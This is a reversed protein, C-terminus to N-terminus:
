PTGREIVPLFPGCITAGPDVPPPEESPPVPYSSGLAEAMARHALDNLHRHEGLQELVCRVSLAGFEREREKLKKEVELAAARPLENRLLERTDRTLQRLEMTNWASVLSSVVAVVVALAIVIVLGLRQSRKAVREVEAFRDQSMEDDTRGEPM